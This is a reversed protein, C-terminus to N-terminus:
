NGLLLSPNNRDENLKYRPFAKLSFTVAVGYEVPENRHDRVRFTVAGTWSRLDRYLTYHQEEMTGDRAEFHHSIRTAWNENLKYFLSSIILNNGPGYWSADDILYRHGLTWSWTANPNITATHNAERFRGNEIDFRVESNFMLWDRPKFDMDSFIDAFTSQGPHPNLRWDTYLAWNLLNDTGDARKTQLKNRLALRLVNQSDISDVANYDPFEIPLLRLTPLESDFQPLEAPARSPSPVYVYNISPQVIHRLQNVDLWRSRAGGWIRSAKTSIEAGTNFVNRSRADLTTGTGETESYYTFRGGVRPSVNLWGFFTQPVTLQHYTDGRFAAFDNSGGKAFNHRLYGLSSDSEYFLPSGGLQQRFASFRLDPLREITDFFDNIQPRALVSLNFDPWGQAVELHSSPQTNSRYESEFFDRIVQADSQERVAVRLTLNTALTARHTFSIRQRDEQIANGQPDVGPENDEIWYSTIEGAGWRGLDYAFDLGGALGRKIRYDVNVAGSLNTTAHWHYGSLLYGGHRSEYGPIFTWYNPHRDLSRSYYPFWFVPTEGVLLTANRATVRNGPSFTLTRARVRYAPRAVDDTTVFANTVSYFFNTPDASLASGAAFFPVLGTRFNEGQVERTLFNYRLQDGRWVAGRTQLLVDGEATAWGTGRNLTARRATLTAEGYVIRVGNSATITNAAEAWEIVSDEGLHEIRWSLPEPAAGVERGAFGLLMAVLLTGRWFGNM